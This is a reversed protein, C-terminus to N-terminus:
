FSIASATAAAIANGLSDAVLNQITDTNFQAYDVVDLIIDTQQTLNVDSATNLAINQIAGDTRQILATQGNNALFVPADGIRLAVNGGTSFGARLADLSAPSLLASHSQTTVVGTNTYSITTQMVLEGNLYTRMNAGLQIDLGAVVFGGRQGSLEDDSVINQDVIDDDEEAGDETLTDADLEPASLINPQPDLETQASATNAFGFTSAAAVALFIAPHNLM